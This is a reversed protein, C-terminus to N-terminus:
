TISNYEVVTNGGQWLTPQQRQKEKGRCDLLILDIM